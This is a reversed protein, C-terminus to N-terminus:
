AHDEAVEHEPSHQTSARGLNAQDNLVLTCKVFGISSMEFTSRALSVKTISTHQHVDFDFFSPCNHLPLSTKGRSGVLQQVLIAEPYYHRICTCVYSRRYNCGPIKKV